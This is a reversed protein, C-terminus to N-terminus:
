YGGELDEKTLATLEKFTVTVTVLPFTGDYTTQITNMPTVNVQMNTLACAKTNPLLKHPTEKVKGDSGVSVFMPTLIFTHPFKLVGTGAPASPHMGKKFFDVIREAFGEAQQYEEFIEFTFNFERFDVNKFFQVANENPALGGLGVINTLGGPDLPSLSSNVGFANIAKASGAAGSQLIQAGPNNGGGYKQILAQAGGALLAGGAGILGTKALGGVSAFAQALTGIKFTNNWNAGYGFQLENPLAISLSSKKHSASVNSHKKYQQKLIAKTLPIQKSPDNPDDITIGTVLILDLDDIRNENLAKQQEAVKANTWFSNTQRLISLKNSLRTQLNLYNLSQNQAATPAVGTNFAGAVFNGFQGFLQASGSTLLKETQGSAKAAIDLGALYEVRDIKLYSAYPIQNIGEPYFIPPLTALKRAM